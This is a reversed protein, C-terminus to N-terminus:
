TGARRRCGCPTRPCRPAPRGLVGRECRLSPSSGTSRHAIELCGAPRRSWSRRTRPPTAPRRASRKAAATRRMVADLQDVDLAAVPLPTPAAPRLGDLVILRPLPAVPRARRRALPGDAAGLMMFTIMPTDLPEADARVVGAAKARDFLETVLPACGARPGRDRARRRPRQVTSCSRSAATARRCSRAAARLLLVFATGRTTSSSRRGRRGRLHGDIRQEFLADILLRRTRSAGTSPASASARTAPSTTSRRRGARARRVARRRRRPHAAPQARRGQAAAEDAPAIPAMTVCTTPFPPASELETSGDASSVYLVCRWKKARFGECSEGGSDGDRGGSPWGRPGRCRAASPRARRSSRSCRAARRAARREAEGVVDALPDDGGVREREALRSSSPPRM